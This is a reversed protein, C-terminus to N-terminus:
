PVVNGDSVQGSILSAKCKLVAKQIDDKTYDVEDKANFYKIVDELNKLGEIPTTADNGILADNIDEVKNTPPRFINNGNFRFIKNASRM